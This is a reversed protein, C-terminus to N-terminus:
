LNLAFSESIFADENHKPLIEFSRETSLIFVHIVYIQRHNKLQNHNYQHQHYKIYEYINLSSTNYIMINLNILILISQM